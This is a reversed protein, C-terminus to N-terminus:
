PRGVTLQTRHARRIASQPCSDCPPARRAVRGCACLRRYVRRPRQAGLMRRARPGTRRTPATSRYAGSSMAAYRRLPRRSPASASRARVRLRTILSAVRGAMLSIDPASGRRRLDAMARRSGPLRSPGEAPVARGIVLSDGRSRHLQSAPKTLMGFPGPSVRHWERARGVRKKPPGSGIASPGAVSTVASGRPLRRERGPHGARSGHRSRRVLAMM